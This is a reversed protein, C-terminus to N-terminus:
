IEAYITLTELQRIKDESQRRTLCYGEHWANILAELISSTENSKESFNTKCLEVFNEDYLARCQRNLLFSKNGHGMAKRYLANLKEGNKVVVKGDFNKLMQPLDRGINQVKRLDEISEFFGKENRHKIINSAKVSSVYPLKTLDAMSCSNLDIKLM